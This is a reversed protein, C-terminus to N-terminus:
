AALPLACERALAWALQALMTLDAHLRAREHGAASRQCRGAMSSAASNASSRPAVATSRRGARRRRPRPGREPPHCACHTDSTIVARLTAHESVLAVLRTWTPVAYISKALAM